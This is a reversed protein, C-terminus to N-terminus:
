EADAGGEGLPVVQVLLCSCFPCACLLAFSPGSSIWLALALGSGLAARGQRGWGWGKMWTRLVEQWASLSGARGRGM